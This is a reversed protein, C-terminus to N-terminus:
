HLVAFAQSVILAIGSFLLLILIAKRFLADDVIGYLRWGLLMGSVLAPL